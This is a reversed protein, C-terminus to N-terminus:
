LQCAVIKISMTVGIIAYPKFTIERFYVYIRNLLINIIRFSHIKWQSSTHTVVTPPQTLLHAERARNFSCRSVFNLLCATIVPAYAVFTVLVILKSQVITNSTITTQRKNYHRNTLEM